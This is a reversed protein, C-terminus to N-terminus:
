RTLPVHHADAPDIARYAGPSLGTILRFDRNMHAQDFFGARAAVEALPVRADRLLTLAECTRRVRCYVKPTLGVERHFLTTFYRHSYGSERQVESVTPSASSARFRALAHRVVPHPTMTIRGALLAEFRDLRAAAEGQSLHDLTRAADAGWVDALEVHQGALEGAPLGLISGHGPEVLAGVSAGGDPGEKQWFHDRLGGVLAHFRRGAADAPGDFITVPDDFRLVLHVSGNPLMQELTRGRAATSETAWVLRVVGQLAPHRPPRVIM